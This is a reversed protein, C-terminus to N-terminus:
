ALTGALHDGAGELPRVTSAPELRLDFCRRFPQLHRRARLERGFRLPRGRPGDKQGLGSCCGRARYAEAGAVCRTTLNGVVTISAYLRMLICQQCSRLQAVSGHAHAPVCVPGTSAPSV